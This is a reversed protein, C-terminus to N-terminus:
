AYHEAQCNELMSKFITTPDHLHYFCRNLVKNLVPSSVSDDATALMTEVGDKTRAIELMGPTPDVILWHQTRSVQSLLVTRVQRTIDPYLVSFSIVKPFRVSLTDSWKWFHSPMTQYQSEM